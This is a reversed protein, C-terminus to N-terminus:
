KVRSGRPCGRTPTAVARSCHSLLYNLQLYYPRLRADVLYSYFTYESLLDVDPETNFVNRIGANVEMNALFSRFGGAGPVSSSRWRLSLDHLIQRPVRGGKGQAAIVPANSALEPDAVLYSSYHRVTWSRFLTTYPFLTDTRTSRPPRRRM